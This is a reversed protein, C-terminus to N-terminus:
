NVHRAYMDDLLGRDQESLPHRGPHDTTPVPVCRCGTHRHMPQDAEYVYGEKWLWFCLECADPNIGRRYGGPGDQQLRIGDQFGRQAAAVPEDTALREVRAAADAETALTEVAKTLREKLEAERQAVDIVPGPKPATTSRQGFTPPAPRRPANDSPMIPAGDVPSAIGGYARGWQEAQLSASVLLGVMLGVWEQEPLQPRLLWVALVAAATQAGLDDLTAYTFDQATASM